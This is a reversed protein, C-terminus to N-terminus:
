DEAIQDSKLFVVNLHRNGCGDDCVLHICFDDEYGVYNIEFGYEFYEQASDYDEKGTWKVEDRDSSLSWVVGSILEFDSTAGTINAYREEFAQKFGIMEKYADKITLM